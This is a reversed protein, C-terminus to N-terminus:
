TLPNYFDNPNATQPSEIHTSYIYNILDKLTPWLPPCLSQYVLMTMGLTMGNIFSQIHTLRECQQKVYQLNTSNLAVVPSSLECKSSFVPSTSLFWAHCKYVSVRVFLFHLLCSIPPREALDHCNSLHLLCSSVSQGNIWMWILHALLYKILASKPSSVDFNIKLSRASLWSLKHQLCIAGCTRGYINKM